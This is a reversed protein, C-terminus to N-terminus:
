RTVAPRLIARRTLTCRWHRKARSTECNVTRLIVGSTPVYIVHQRHANYLVAMGKSQGLYFLRPGFIGIRGDGNPGRAEVIAPDGHVALLEVDFVPLPVKIPEIRRGSKLRDAYTDAVIHLFVPLAMGVLATALVASALWPQRRVRRRITGPGHLLDAHQALWILGRLGVGAIAVSFAAVVAVGAAGGLTKAYDLGADAPNVGLEQFFESYALILTGYVYLGVVAIVPTAITAAREWGASPSSEQAM